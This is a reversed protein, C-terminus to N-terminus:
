RLTHVLIISKEKLLQQVQLAYYTPSDLIKEVSKRHAKGISAKAIALEINNLDIIKEYINGIRKM